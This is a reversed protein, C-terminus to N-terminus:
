YFKSTSIKFLFNKELTHIRTKYGIKLPIDNLNGWQTNTMCKQDRVAIWIPYAEMYTTGM